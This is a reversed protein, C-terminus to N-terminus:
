RFSRRWTTGTTRTSGSRRELLKPMAPLVREGSFNLYHALWGENVLFRIFEKATTTNGGGGFVVAPWVQGWIPFLEGGPGLPWQVTAMDNRYDDPRERKLANPISLSGNPTAVVTQALFAKNNRDDTSWNMADPPTCGKRFIATYSDIAKALKQRIKADDLLLKGDPTVYDADYAIMFQYFGVWTDASTASMNLGVGWIDDRGTVQRVAPQVQDCWFSWFPDWEKPIDDITFGAEEL